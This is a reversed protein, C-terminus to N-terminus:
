TYRPRLLKISKDLSNFIAITQSGDLIHQILSFGSTGAHLEFCGHLMPNSVMDDNIKIPFKLSIQNYTIDINESGTYTHSSIGTDYIALCVQSLETRIGLFGNGNYVSQLDYENSTNNLIFELDYNNLPNGNITSNQFVNKNINYTYDLVLVKNSGIKISLIDDDGSTYYNNSSNLQLLITEILENTCTLVKGEPNTLTTM